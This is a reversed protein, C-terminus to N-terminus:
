LSEEAKGRILSQLTYVLIAIGIAGLAAVGLFLILDVPGGLDSLHSDTMRLVFWVAAVAGVPM